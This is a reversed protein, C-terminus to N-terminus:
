MARGFLGDDHGWLDKRFNEFTVFLRGGANWRFFPRWICYSDRIGSALDVAIYEILPFERYRWWFIVCAFNAGPLAIQLTQTTEKPKWRFYSLQYVELEHAISSYMNSMDPLIRRREHRLWFALPRPPVPPM